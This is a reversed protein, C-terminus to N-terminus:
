QPKPENKTVQISTKGDTIFEIKNNKLGVQLNNSSINQAQPSNGSYVEVMWDLLEDIDDPESM